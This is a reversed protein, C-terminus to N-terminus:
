AARTRSIWGGGLVLDGDYVVAAQGPAVARQPEDFRVLASGDGRDEISAPTGAHSSRIRVSARLTGGPREFPIWRVGDLTCEACSLEDRGGVVVRGREPDIDVVYLPESAAVGLGRRQGVTFGSVGGHRGLTRGGRDVIEGAGDDPV